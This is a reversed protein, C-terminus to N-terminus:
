RVQLQLQLLSILQTLLAIIQKQLAIKEDEEGGLVTTTAGLVLKKLKQTMRLRKVEEVQNVPGEM